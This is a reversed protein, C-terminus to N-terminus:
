GKKAALAMAEIKLQSRVAEVRQAAKDAEITGNYLLNKEFGCVACNGNKDLTNTTEPDQNKCNWCLEGQVKTPQDKKTDSDLPQVSDEPKSNDKAM